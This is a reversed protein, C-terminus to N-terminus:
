IIKKIIKSSSFNKIRPFIVINSFNRGVVSSFKYDGGKVILDPKINKILKLPTKSNFVNIKSILKTKKLNDIRKKLKDRPRGKGKLISVSKDSNISITM